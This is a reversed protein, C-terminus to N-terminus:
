IGVVCLYCWGEAWRVSNENANGPGERVAPMGLDLKETLHQHFRAIHLHNHRRVMGNLPTLDGTTLKLLTSKGAGNPGVLAVRSDLDVGFDLNKYILNDPTYVFSVDAFQLVPPPLKGVDTFPFV